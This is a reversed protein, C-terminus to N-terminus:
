GSAFVSKGSPLLPISILKRLKGGLRSDCTKTMVGTIYNYQLQPVIAFPPYGAGTLYCSEKALPLVPNPM